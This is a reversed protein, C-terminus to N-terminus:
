GVEAVKKGVSDKFSKARGIAKAAQIKQTTSLNDM